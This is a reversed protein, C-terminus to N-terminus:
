SAKTSEEVSRWRDLHDMQTIGFFGVIFLASICCCIIWLPLNINRQGYLLYYAQIQFILVGYQIIASPIIAVAWEVIRTSPRNIKREVSGALPWYIPMSPNIYAVLDNEDGKHSWKSFASELVEVLAQLRSTDLAAQFYLCAVVVPIFLLVISGKYIQFSGLAIKSGPSEIVLEFAAILSLIILIM